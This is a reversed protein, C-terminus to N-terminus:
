SAMSMISMDLLCGSLYQIAPLVGFYLNMQIQYLAQRRYPHGM